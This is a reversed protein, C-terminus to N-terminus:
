KVMRYWQNKQKRKNRFLSIARVVDIAFITDSEDCDSCVLVDEYKLTWGLGPQKQWVKNVRRVHSSAKGCIGCVGLECLCDLDNPVFSCKDEEYNYWVHGGCKWCNGILKWDYCANNLM